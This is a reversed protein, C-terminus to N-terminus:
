DLKLAAFREKHILGDTVCYILRATMIHRMASVRCYQHSVNCFDAGARIRLNRWIIRRLLCNATPMRM